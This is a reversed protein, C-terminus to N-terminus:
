SLRWLLNFYLIKKPDIFILYFENFFLASKYSITKTSIPLTTGTGPGFKKKQGPGPGPGSNKKAPVTVLFKKRSPVSVLIKKRRSRFRSWFHSTGSIDSNWVNQCIKKQERLESILVYSHIILNPNRKSNLKKKAYVILLLIGHVHNGKFLFNINSFSLYYHLKYRSIM